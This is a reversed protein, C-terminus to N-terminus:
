MYMSFFNKNVKINMNLDNPYLAYDQSSEEVEPLYLPL